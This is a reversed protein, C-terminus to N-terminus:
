HNGYFHTAKENIDREKIEVIVASIKEAPERLVM